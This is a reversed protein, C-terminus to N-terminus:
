SFNYKFPPIGKSMVSRRSDELNGTTETRQFEPHTNVELRVFVFSLGSSRSDRVNTPSGCHWASMRAPAERLLLALEKM